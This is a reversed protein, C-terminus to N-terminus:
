TTIVIKDSKYSLYFVLSLSLYVIALSSLFHVPKIIAKGESELYKYLIAIIWSFNIIVHAIIPPILSATKEYIYALLVGTLFIGVHGKINLGPHWLTFILSSIMIAGFVGFKRRLPPYFFGRSLTEEIVPGITITIISHLLFIWISHSTFFKIDEDNALLLYKGLLLQVCFKTFYFFFIIALVFKINRRLNLQQFGFFKFDRLKYKYVIFIIIGFFFYFLVDRYEIIIQSGFMKQVLLYIAAYIIIFIIFCGNLILVDRIGLNISNFFNDKSVNNKSM